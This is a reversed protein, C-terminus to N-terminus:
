YCSVYGSNIQIGENKACFHQSLVGVKVRAFMKYGENRWMYYHRTYYFAMLYGLLTKVSLWLINHECVTTAIAIM